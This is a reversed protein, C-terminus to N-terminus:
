IADAYKRALINAALERRSLAALPVRVADAFERDPAAADSMGWATRASPPGLAGSPSPSRQAGLAVASVDSGRLIGRRAFPCRTAVARRDRAASPGRYGMSLRRRPEFRDRRSRRPRGCARITRLPSARALVAAVHEQASLSTRGPCTPLVRVLAAPQRLGAGARFTRASCGMPSTSSGHASGRRRGLGPTRTLVLAACRRSLASWVARHTLDPHPLTSGRRSATPGKYLAAAVIRSRWLAAMAPIMVTVPNLLLAM